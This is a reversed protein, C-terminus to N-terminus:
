LILTSQNDPELTSQLHHVFSTRSRKINLLLSQMSRVCEEIQDLDVINESNKIEVDLQCSIAVLTDNKSTLQDRLYIGKKDLKNLNYKM